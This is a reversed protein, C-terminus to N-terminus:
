LYCAIINKFDPHYKFKSHLNQQANIIEKDIQGTKLYELDAHNM